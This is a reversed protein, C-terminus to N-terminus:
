WLYRAVGYLLVATAELYIWTALLTWRQLAFAVAGLMMGVLVPLWPPAVFPWADHENAAYVYGYESMRVVLWGGGEARGIVALDDEDARAVEPWAAFHPRREHPIMQPDRHAVRSGVLEGQEVHFLVPDGAVWAQMGERASTYPGTSLGMHSGGHRELEQEIVAGEPIPRRDGLRALQLDLRWGSAGAPTTAGYTTFADRSAGGVACRALTIALAVVFAVRVFRMPRAADPLSTRRRLAGIIALLAGPGLRILLYIALLVPWEPGSDGCGMGSDRWPEAPREVPLSVDALWLVSPSIVVLLLMAYSGLALARVLPGSTGPQAPANGVLIAAAIGLVLVVGAAVVASV